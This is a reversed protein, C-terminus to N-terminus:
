RYMQETIAAREELRQDHDMLNEKVYCAEDSALLTAVTVLVARATGRVGLRGHVTRLM